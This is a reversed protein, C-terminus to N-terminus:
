QLWKSYGSIRCASTDQGGQSSILNQDDDTSKGWKPMTFFVLNAMERCKRSFVLFSHGWIQCTSTNEGGESCILNQDRYTSIGWKPAMKFAHSSHSLIQCASKDQGGKSSFVNPDIPKGWKPILKVKHFLDFICNGTMKTVIYPLFLGFDKWTRSLSTIDESIFQLNWTPLHTSTPTPHPM